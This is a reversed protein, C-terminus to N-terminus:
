IEVLVVTINDSGGLENASAIMRDVIIEPDEESSILEKILTEPISNTLGDSCLLFKDGEVVEIEIIDIELTDNSGLARTLINRQPHNKAEEATIEGSKVLEYVLSHDHTLQRLNNGSLYYVRSDGIHTVYAREAELYLVAVTTGMGNLEQDQAAKKLIAQEAAILTNRLATKPEGNLDAKLITEVAIASAVEGAQHGGMGDAVVFLNDHYGFTDENIERIKGRDTRGAAKM